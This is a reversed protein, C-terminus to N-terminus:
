VLQLRLSWHGSSSFPKVKTWLLTRMHAPGRTHFGPPLVVCMVLTSNSSAAAFREPTVFFSASRTRYAKAMATVLEVSYPPLTPLRLKPENASRVTAAGFNVALEVSLASRLGVRFYDRVGSPLVTAAVFFAATFFVAALFVAALLAGALFVAARLVVALFAGARLVVARLDAALFLVALFAVAFLVEADRLVAALFDGAFFVAAFFVVARFAEAARFVVVLRDGALFVAARLDVARFAGAARLVTALRVVFRTEL